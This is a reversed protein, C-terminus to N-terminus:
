QFVIFEMASVLINAKLFFQTFFQQCNQSMKQRKDVQLAPNQEQTWELPQLCDVVM